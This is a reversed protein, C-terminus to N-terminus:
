KSKKLKGDEQGGMVGVEIGLHGFPSRPLEKRKFMGRVM